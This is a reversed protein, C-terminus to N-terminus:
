RNGLKMRRQETVDLVHVLLEVRAGQSLRSTSIFAWLESRDGSRFRREMPEGRTAAIRAAFRRAYTERDV